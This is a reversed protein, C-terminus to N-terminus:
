GELFRIRRENTEVRTSVLRLSRQRRASIVRVLRPSEDVNQFTHHVVLLAGSSDFGMTIWREEKESHDEDLVSLMKPDRCVTAASEFAVDHKVVNGKAKKPVLNYRVM